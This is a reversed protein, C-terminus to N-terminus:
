HKDPCNGYAENVKVKPELANWNGDLDEVHYGLEVGIKKCNGEWEDGDVHNGPTMVCHQYYPNYNAVKDYVNDCIYQTLDLNVIWGTKETWTGCYCRDHKNAAALPVLPALLALISSARM